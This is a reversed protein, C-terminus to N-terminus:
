SKKVYRERCKQLYKEYKENDTEKMKKYYDKNIQQKSKNTKNFSIIKLIEDLKNNIELLSIDM